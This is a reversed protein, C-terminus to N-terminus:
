AQPTWTQLVRMYNAREFARPDPCRAHSMSGRMASLSAYENQEMFEVFGERIQALRRPGHTLLASVVQVVDAGTMTAKVADMGSHVGGSAGLSMRVQPRLIALWRLRLLLEAPDSLHLRPVAVLELPDIDPQYFRNFLILGRAGAEELRAALNPLSSYFPSLKVAVPIRVSGCTARVIEVIRSEVDLGRELPDTVIDYVNLELADAGAQEILRAHGTWGGVSTGNLSAIVPVSVAAKVRRLHEIYAEPGFVFDSPAPLYTSAEASIGLGGELAAWTADREAEIQEEFLSRLVIASAGADELARVSDLHDGLPSAGPMFPTALDLGLWTTRLDM